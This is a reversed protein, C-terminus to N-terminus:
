EPMQGPAGSARRKDRFFESGSEGAKTKEKQKSKREKIRSQKSRLEKTKSKL